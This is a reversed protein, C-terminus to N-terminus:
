HRFASALLRPPLLTGRSRSLHLLGGFFRGVHVFLAIRFASLDLVGDLGVQLLIGVHGVGLNAHKRRVLLNHEAPGDQRAGGLLVGLVNRLFMSASSFYGVSDPDIRASM